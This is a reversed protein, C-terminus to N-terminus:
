IFFIERSKSFIFLINLCMKRLGWGGGWNDFPGGRIPNRLQDKIDDSSIIYLIPGLISEQSVGAM